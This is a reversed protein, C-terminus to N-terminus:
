GAALRQRIAECLALMQEVTLEEARSNPGLEQLAMIEDVAPKELRGKYAALIVSRLFKRRHFFM